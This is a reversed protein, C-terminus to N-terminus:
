AESAKFNYLPKLVDIVDVTDRIQGVIEDMPKYAFPAEDITEITVSTSYIGSMTERYADMSLERRAQSRSMIRGAGHPASNNWDPNGKGICLLSGDRMNIPILLREGEYASVAGKRLMMEDTNIYNHITVFTHDSDLELAAAIERWIALRNFHAYEQMVKMDHLYDFFSEGELWALDREEKTPKRNGFREEIAKKQYFDAVQKGVNRSGSHIILYQTGFKGESLEIFHNGGGLTGISLLARQMNIFDLCKLTDLAVLKSIMHPTERVHFGSPVLRRIVDDLEAVDVLGNLKSVWMGCGIDVGVLNPVVKDTITMTTGITCGAGAHVDPMIRIKQGDSIPHDMMTQIQVKATDELTEAYVTAIGFKGQMEM